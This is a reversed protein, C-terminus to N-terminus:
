ELPVYVENPRTISYETMGSNGATMVSIDEIVYPFSTDTFTETTVAIASAEYVIDGFDNAAYTGTLSGDDPVKGVFDYSYGSKDYIAAALCLSNGSHFLGKGSMGDNAITSRLQRKWQVTGSSNWKVIIMNDASNITKKASYYVNGSSDVALGGEISVSADVRQQWQLAGSSDYKIVYNDGEYNFTQVYVNGSFDACINFPESGAASCSRAWQIDLASNLKITVVNSNSKGSLYINGYGDAALGQYEMLMADTTGAIKKNALLAGSSDYKVLWAHDGSVRGGAYINDNSDVTVASYVNAWGSEFLKKDWQRTGSSNYKAIFGSGYNLSSQYPVNGVLYLSNNSDIAIDQSRLSVNVNAIKNTKVFQPAGDKDYGVIGNGWGVPVGPYQSGNIENGTFVEGASNAVVSLLRSSSNDKAYYITFWYSGATENPASTGLAITYTIPDM